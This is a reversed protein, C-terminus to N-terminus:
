QCVNLVDMIHESTVHLRAIADKIAADVHYNEITDLPLLCDEVEAYFPQRFERPLSDAAPRIQHLQIATLALTRM